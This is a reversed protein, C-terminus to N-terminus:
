PFVNKLTGLVILVTQSTVRRESITAYELIHPARSPKPRAVMKSFLLFFFSQAPMYVM